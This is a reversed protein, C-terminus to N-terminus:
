KNSNEPRGSLSFHSSPVAAAILPNNTTSGRGGEKAHVQRNKCAGSILDRALLWLGCPRVQEVKVRDEQTTSRVGCKTTKTAISEDIAENIFINHLEM